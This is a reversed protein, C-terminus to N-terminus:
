LRQEREIIQWQMKKKKELLLRCVLDFRSQLESTHEESRECTASRTTSASVCGSSYGATVGGGYELRPAVPRPLHRRRRPRQARAAAPGAADRAAAAQGRRVARRVGACM